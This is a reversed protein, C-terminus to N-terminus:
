SRVLDTNFEVYAVTNTRGCRRTSLARSAMQPLHKHRWTQSYHPGQQRLGSFHGSSRCSGASTLFCSGRHVSAAGQPIQFARLHTESSLVLRDTSTSQLGHLRAFLHSSYIDHLSTPADAKSPRQQGVKCSCCDSLVIISSSFAEGEVNRHEQTALM